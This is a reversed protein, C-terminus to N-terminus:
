TDGPSYYNNLRLLLLSNTHNEFNYPRDNNTSGNGRKCILPFGTTLSDVYVWIESSIIGNSFALTPSYAVDIRDNSGDINISGNNGSDFAAGNILSGDNGKGSLDTWTTGSGPYSKTNAADVCLVLGDTVLRPSHALGM